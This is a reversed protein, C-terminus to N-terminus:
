APVGFFQGRSGTLKLAVSAADRVSAGPIDPFRVANPSGPNRSIERSRGFERTGTGHLHQGPSTAAVSPMQHFQTGSITRNGRHRHSGHQAFETGASMLCLLSDLKPGKLRLALLLQMVPPHARCMLCHVANQTATDGTIGRTGEFDVAGM